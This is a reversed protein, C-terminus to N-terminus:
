RGTSGFGNIGRETSQDVEDVEVAWVRAVHYFVLQGVREGARITVTGRDNEVPAAHLGLASTMLRPFTMNRVLVFLDGRYGTDITGADVQLNRRAISSRARIEAWVGDPLELRANIPVDVAQMPPIVVDHMAELDWGVDGSRKPLHLGPPLGPDVRSWRLCTRSRRTEDVASM